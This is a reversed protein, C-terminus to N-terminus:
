NRFSIRWVAAFYRERSSQESEGESGREHSLCHRHSHTSPKDEGEEKQVMQNTQETKTKM